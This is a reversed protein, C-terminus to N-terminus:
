KWGIITKRGLYSTTYKLKNSANVQNTQKNHIKTKCVKHLKENYCIM